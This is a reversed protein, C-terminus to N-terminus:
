TNVITDIKLLPQFIFKMIFNTYQNSSTKKPELSNKKQLFNKPNRIQKFTKPTMSFHDFWTQRLIKFAHGYWILSERSVHPDNLSMVENWLVSSSSLISGWDFKWFVKLVDFGWAQCEVHYVGFFWRELEQSSRM